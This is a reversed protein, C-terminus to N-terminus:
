EVTFATHMDEAYHATGAHEGDGTEVVNCLLVYSGSELNATVSAEDGSAIDEIEDVVEVGEGAEDVSGDEATPLADEALDTRVIVFEHVEAGDNSTNFTVEGAPVSAPTPEIAFEYLRVAVSSTEASPPTQDEATPTTDGGNEDNSDGCAVSAVALMSLLLAVAMVAWTKRM